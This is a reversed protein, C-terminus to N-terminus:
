EGVPAERTSQAQQVLTNRLADQYARLVETGPKGRQEMDEAWQRNVGSLVDNFAARDEPSLDVFSVGTERILEQSVASDNDVAACGSLLVEDGAQTFAEQIEPSMNNWTELGIAHIAVASGFNESRTGYKLQHHLDYDAVSSHALFIGDITGRSLSELIEPASMQIPVGGLERTALVKPRGTARLKLGQIVDIGDIPQDALYLQYPSFVMAFLARVGLPELERQDLIGGPKALEWYAISGECSTSFSGPLEAVGSLPLKDTIYSPLVMSVHTVGSQTLSLLDKAKGLQESPFYDFVIEGDTLETVRAMWVKTMFESIYHGAPLYDAMRLVTPEARATGFSLLCAAVMGLVCSLKFGRPSQM